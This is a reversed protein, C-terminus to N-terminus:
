PPPPACLVTIALALAVPSVSVVFVRIHPRVPMLFGGPDSAQVPLHVAHDVRIRLIASHGAGGCGGVCVVAAGRDAAGACAAVHGDVSGALLFRLTGAVVGGGWRRSGCAGLGVPVAVAHVGGGARVVAGIGVAREALRVAPGGGRRARGALVPVAPADRATEVGLRRVKLGPIRGRRTLRPRLITSAGLAVM